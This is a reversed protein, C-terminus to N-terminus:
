SNFGEWLMMYRPLDGLWVANRVTGEPEPVCANGLFPQPAPLDRGKVRGGSGQVKCLSVHHSEMLDDRRDLKGPIWGGVLVEFSLGEIIDILESLFGGCPLWAQRDEGLDRLLRLNDSDKAKLNDVTGDLGTDHVLL